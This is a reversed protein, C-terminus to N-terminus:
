EWVSGKRVGPGVFVRASPINQEKFLLVLEFLCCKLSLRNELPHVPLTADPRDGCCLIEPFTFFYFSM